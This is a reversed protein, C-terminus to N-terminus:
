GNELGWLLLRKVKDCKAKCLFEFIDKCLSAKIDNKKPTPLSIFIQYPKSLILTKFITIRGIPTLTRRNQQQIIIKNKIIRQQLEYRYNEGIRCFFKNRIILFNNVGTQSGGKPKLIKECWDM